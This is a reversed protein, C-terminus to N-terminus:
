PAPYHQLLAQVAHDPTLQDAEAQFNLLLRHRLVPAALQRVDELTAAFRGHLLARAKACLVLAQGARPGAGWRGYDQIFQVPSDQPRTARVLRTVYQLLEPSITVERVLQRLQRLEEAGIVPRPQQGATGTTNQLIALEEQETPYGIRVYLLFRDLQAEPLPYTGAQEIPNQTALLFFPDPLPHTHGAYTVEFEQMVELLAAQTKPPTRNIEDALVLNAFVPGRVFEFRRRGTTHDEELVETGLIDTPMLDPTFQIRRFSLDTAAALTRVLLTKALGPVGELLAHGGALLAVLVEDLVAHQGVIVKGIEQRLVPLKALLQHLQPETM